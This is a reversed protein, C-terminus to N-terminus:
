PSSLAQIPASEGAYKKVATHLAKGGDFVYLRPESFDLGRTMLDGLLEGVVTANETAGQRLAWFRKAHASIVHRSRLRSHDLRIQPECMPLHAFFGKQEEAGRKIAPGSRQALERQSVRGSAWCHVSRHASRRWAGFTSATPSRCTPLKPVHRSASPRSQLPTSSKSSLQGNGYVLSKTRSVALAFITASRSWSLM